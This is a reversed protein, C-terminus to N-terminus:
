VCRELTVLNVEEKTDRYDPTDQERQKRKRRGKRVTSNQGNMSVGEPMVGGLRCLAQVLRVPLM